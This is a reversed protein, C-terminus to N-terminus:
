SRQCDSATFKHTIYIKVKFRRFFLITPCSNANGILTEKTKFVIKSGRQSRQVITPVQQPCVNLNVRSQNEIGGISM